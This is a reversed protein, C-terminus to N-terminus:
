RALLGPPLRLVAQKVTQNRRFYLAKPLVALRVFGSALFVRAPDNIGGLARETPVPLGRIAAILGGDDLCTRIM